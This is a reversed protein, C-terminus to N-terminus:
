SALEQNIFTGASSSDVLVLVEKSDIYGRLRVTRNKKRTCTDGLSDHALKVAMVVHGATAKSDEESSAYDLELDVQVAEM